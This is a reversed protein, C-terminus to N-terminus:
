LIGNDSAEQLRNSCGALMFIIFGIVAALLHKRNMEAPGTGWFRNIKKWLM